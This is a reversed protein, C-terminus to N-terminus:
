PHVEFWQLGYPDFNSHLLGLGCPSAVLQHFASSDGATLATGTIVPNVANASVKAILIPRPTGSITENWTIVFEGGHWVVNPLQAWRSGFVASSDTIVGGGILVRAFAGAASLNGTAATAVAYQTGDTAISSRHTNFPLTVSRVSDDVGIEYVLGPNASAVIAWGNPTAILTKGNDSLAGSGVHKAPAAPVGAATLRRFWIGNDAWAVGWQGHGWAVATGTQQVGTGGLTLTSGALPNLAADARMFTARRPTQLGHLFTIGYESGSFDIRPWFDSVGNNNATLVMRAGLRQGLADTKELYLQLTFPNESVVEDLVATYGAGWWVLDPLASRYAGINRVAPATPCTLGGADLTGGDFSGADAVGSDPTGADGLGADPIGADPSGADDQGGDYSLLSLISRGHLEVDVTADSDAAIILNGLDDGPEDPARYGLEITVSEGPGLGRPLPARSFSTRSNQLEIAGLNLRYNGRNSLTLSHVANQGARVEGFDVTQPEVSLQGTAPQLREGCNCGAVTLLLFVFFARM